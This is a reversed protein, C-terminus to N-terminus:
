FTQAKGGISCAVVTSTSTKVCGIGRAYWYQEVDGPIVQGTERITQVIQNTVKLCDPLFTGGITLDTIAAVTTTATVDVHFTYGSLNLIYSTTGVYSMGLYADDRIFVLPTDFIVEGTYSASQVYQGYLMLNLGDFRYYEKQGDGYTMVMTEKGGIYKTGTITTRKVTVGDNYDWWDGVHLPFYDAIKFVPTKDRVTITVVQRDEAGYSDTVVFTVNYLGSQSYTPTWTFTRTATHFAAGTPLGEARYTLPDGDPDQAQVAFTLTSNEDVTRNGITAFAPPRNDERIHALRQLLYLAEAHGLRGDGNVDAAVALPGPQVSITIGSLVQLALIADALDLRGDNNLDGPARVAALAAAGNLRGGSILKGAVSSIPDVTDLIAKKVQSYTLTPSKALMLAAVATVHPTAMSTGSKYCYSGSLCTSYISVGPAMLHVTQAGYNSSSYLSDNQDSAAVAIINDLGYSAPYCKNGTAPDINKGDNGAAAVVLIGADRLRVFANYEATVYTSGGFSCNVIRAGKAVAYEIAAAIDISEMQGGGDAQVKLAMIRSSWSGGAVGIGNDGVAAVVGAVHTGHGNFDLPDADGMGAGSFDWGRIDDTYGNGDDDVGNAPIEGPNNWINSSLDPHNYDVGTDIIAVLVRPSGTSVDWATPLGIKTLNWQSSFSPDNPTKQHYRLAHREVHEVLPSARYSTLGQSITMGDPLRVCDIGQKKLSKLVVSGIAAHLAQKKAEDVGDRFAVLLERPKYL